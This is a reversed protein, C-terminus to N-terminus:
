PENQGDHNVLAAARIMVRLFLAKPLKFTVIKSDDSRNPPQTDDSRRSPKRNSAPARPKLYAFRTAQRVSEKDAPKDFFRM